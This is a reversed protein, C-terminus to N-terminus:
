LIRVYWSKTHSNMWGLMLLVVKNGVKDGMFKRSEMQSIATKMWTLVTLVMAHTMLSSYDLRGTKTHFSIWQLILIMFM